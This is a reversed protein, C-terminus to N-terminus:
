NKTNLIPINENKIRAPEDTEESLLKQLEKKKAEIQDKIEKKKAGKEKIEEKNEKLAENLENQLSENLEDTVQKSGELVEEVGSNKSFVQKFAQLLGGKKGSEQMAIKLFQDQRDQLYKFQYQSTIKENQLELYSIEFTCQLLDKELQQLQKELELVEIKNKIIENQAANKQILSLVPEMNENTVVGPVLHGTRPEKTLRKGNTLVQAGKLGLALLLDATTKRAHDTLLFIMRLKFISKYNLRYRNDVREPEIYFVLETRFYNRITSDSKDLIKGADVTSFSAETHMSLIEETYLQDELGAYTIEHRIPDEKFEQELRAKLGEM